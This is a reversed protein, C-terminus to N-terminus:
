HYLKFGNGVIQGAESFIIFANKDIELIRQQFAVIEKEKLACMLVDRRNMTYGGVARFITVGRPSSSVLKNTIDDGKETVVFALKSINMKKILWNVAFSSIGISMIGYFALDFERFVIFSALIVASDAILLVTGVKASKFARQFLRAVIDTGGTSAGEIFNLGTGFGYLVSGFFAALWPDDTPSPIYSFAQVFVTLLSSSLVTTLFFDKGLFILALLLLVANIAAYSVGLPVNLSHFLIVAIGSVGGSVIKNPSFFVSIAFGVMASGLIIMFYRRFGAKIKLSKKSM